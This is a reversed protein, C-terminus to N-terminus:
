ICTTLSVYKVFTHLTRYAKVLTKFLSEAHIDTLVAKVLESLILMLSVLRKCYEKEFKRTMDENSGSALFFCYLYYIICVKITDVFWMIEISQHVM